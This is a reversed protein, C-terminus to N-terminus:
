DSIEKLLKDQIYKKGSALAVEAKGLEVGIDLAHSVQSIMKRRTIQVYAEMASDAYFEQLSSGDPSQHSIKIGRDSDVDILINGRPDPLNMRQHAPFKDLLERASDWDSSYIHASNSIISLDGLDAGIYDAIEKQVYRLASSNEPYAKFIDNSRIYAAMMLSNDQVLAQVLDLCPAHSNNHDKLVNWTVGVARRSFVDKKLHAKMAAIQDIGNHDRLLAGYTYNVGDIKNATMLQPLYHKLSEPTMGRSDEGKNPFYGFAPHWFFDDPNEDSIITMLSPLEIQDDSYQSPKECGFKLINDLVNLWVEGIKRGRVVIGSRESPFIAPSIPAIREYIENVGWPRLSSTERLKGELSELSEGRMDIMEVNRRFREVAEVPIDERLKVGRSSNLSMLVDGSPSLDNGWIYVRQITKNALCNRIIESVGEVEGYCQGAINFLGPSIKEKIIKKDSWLTCIGNNSNFNGIIHQGQYSIPWEEM